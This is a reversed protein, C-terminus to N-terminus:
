HCFIFGLIHAWCQSRLVVRVRLSVASRGGACIAIHIMQQFNRLPNGISSEMEYGVISAVTLLAKVQDALSCDLSYSPQISGDNHCNM